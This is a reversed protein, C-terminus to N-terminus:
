VLWPWQQPLGGANVIAMAKLFPIENNKIYKQAAESSGLSKELDKTLYPITRSFDDIYSTYIFLFKHYCCIEVIHEPTYDISLTGDIYSKCLQSDSRLELGQKNLAETLITRRDDSFM